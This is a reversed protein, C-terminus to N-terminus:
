VAIEAAIRLDNHLGIRTTVPRGVEATFGTAALLLVPLDSEPTLRATVTVATRETTQPITRLAVRAANGAPRRPLVAAAAM